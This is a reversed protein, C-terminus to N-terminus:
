NFVRYRAIMLTASVQLIYLRGIMLNHIYSHRHLLVYYFHAINVPITTSIAAYAYFHILFPKGSSRLRLLSSLHYNDQRDSYAYRAPVLLLLTTRITISPHSTRNSMTAFLIERGDSAAWPRRMIRSQVKPSGGM